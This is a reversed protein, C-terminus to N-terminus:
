KAPKKCLFKLMQSPVHNFHYLAEQAEQYACSATLETGLVAYSFFSFIGFEVYPISHCIM